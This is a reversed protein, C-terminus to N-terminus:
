ARDGEPAVVMSKAGHGVDVVGIVDAASGTLNGKLLLVNQTGMNLVLRGKGGDFHAVAQPNNIKVGGFRAENPNLFSPPNPTFNMGFGCDFCDVEPSSQTGPTPVDITDPGVDVTTVSPTV